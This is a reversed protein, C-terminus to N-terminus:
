GLLRANEIAIVAQAAFNKVLEIQKDSFPRVEQRYIDCVGLLANDKRLAVSLLAGRRGSRCHRSTHPQRCPVPHLHPWIRFTFLAAAACSRWLVPLLRWLCLIASSSPSRPHRRAMHRQSASATARASGFLALNPRASARRVKWSRKLFRSYTGLHRASSACCKPHRRRNSWRSPSIPLASACSM